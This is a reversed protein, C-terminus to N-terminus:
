GKAATRRARKAKLEDVLQQGPTVAGGLTELELDVARLEKSIKPIDGPEVADLAAILKDRLTDLDTKRTVM